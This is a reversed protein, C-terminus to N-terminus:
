PVGVASLYTRLRNYLALQGASGLSAGIFAASFVNPDDSGILFPYGNLGDSVAAIPNSVSGNQCLYINAADRREAAFLGKTITTPENAYANGNIRAVFGSPPGTLKLYLASSTYANVLSNNEFPQVSYTWLGLSASNLTYNLGSDTAILSTGMGSSTFPGFGVYSTFPTSKLLGNDVLTYKTGVLNLLADSQNQQALVYLADLKPWVGDTVLGCILTTLDAAHTTEGPARALYATAEACGTPTVADMYTKLRNYLALQGVAGLSAGIFAASLTQNTPPPGGPVAGIKFDGNFLSASAAGSSVSGVGNQYIYSNAADPRDGAIIGATISSVLRFYGSNNVSIIANGDSFHGYVEALNDTIGVQPSSDVVNSYAWYGLSASNLTYHSGVATTPNFGTLLPAGFGSFGVYPTFAFARPGPKALLAGTIPYSASILNLQADSQNQQALVYFADLKPWVGDAVLGDILTTINAGNGGENGGVTRALYAQSPTQVPFTQVQSATTWTTNITAMPTWTSGDDSWQPTFVTPMLTYTTGDSRAQLAVEVINLAKGAGYDYTWTQPSDDTSSWETSPNNDAAKDAEFGAGYFSTASATGGSFLLPAGATTRFQIEAISYLAANNNSSMYLRWYRHGTSASGGDWATFGAPPAYKQSAATSQLTWVGVGTSYFTMGPLLAVGLAPAAIDINEGTGGSPIGTYAWTNNRGVWVKGADFDIAFSFVDNAAPLLNVGATPFSFGSTGFKGGTLQLGVSVGNDGLGANAANFAANAFGLMLYQTSAAVSTSFEVYWKGTNHSTTGRISQNGAFGSPTVTLGGNSLTMGNAAADAASWVSTTGGGGGAVPTCPACFATVEAASTAMVWVHSTSKIKATDGAAISFGESAPITPTTDAIAYAGTGKFSLMMPGAGLDLWAANTVPTRTTVVAANASVVALLAFLCALVRIVTM